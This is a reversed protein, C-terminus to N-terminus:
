LSPNRGVYSIIDVLPHDQRMQEFFHQLSLDLNGYVHIKDPIIEFFMQYILFDHEQQAFESLPHTNGIFLINVREALECLNGFIKTDRRRILYPNFFASHMLIDPNHGKAVFERALHYVEQPAEKELVGLVDIEEETKMHKIQIGKEWLDAFLLVLELFEVGCGEKRFISYLKKIIDKKAEHTPAHFIDEVVHNWIGAGEETVADCFYATCKTQMAIEYTLLNQINSLSVFINESNSEPDLSSPHMGKIIYLKKHM